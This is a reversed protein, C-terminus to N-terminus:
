QSPQMLSSQQTQDALASAGPILTMGGAVLVAAMIDRKM